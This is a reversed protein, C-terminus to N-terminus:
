ESVSGGNRVVREPMLKYDQLTSEQWAVQRALFLADVPRSVAWVFWGVLMLAMAAGAVRVVGRVTSFFRALLAAAILGVIMVIVVIALGNLPPSARLLIGVLAFWTIDMSLLALIIMLVAWLVAALVVRVVVWISVFQKSTCKIWTNMTAKMTRRGSTIEGM